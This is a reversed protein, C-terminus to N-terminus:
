IPVEVYFTIVISAILVFFTVLWMSDRVFLPFPDENTKNNQIIVFSKYSFLVMFPITWLPNTACVPIIDTIWAVYFINTFILALYLCISLTRLSVKELVKRVCIGTADMRRKENVRKGLTTFTTLAVIMFFFWRSLFVDAVMSGYIARLWFGSVIMAVDVVVLNKMGLSYLVNIFLYAAVLLASLRPLLFYSIAISLAALFLCLIRAQEISVKKSAIPRHCKAPNSADNKADAIDNMVYVASSALCFVFVGLLAPIIKWEVFLEGSFLLPLLVIVNKLYQDVRMLKLYVNM